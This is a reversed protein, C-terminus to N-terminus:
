VVPSGSGLFCLGRQTGLLCPRSSCAEYVDSPLDSSFHGLWMPVPTPSEIVPSEVVSDPRIYGESMTPLFTPVAASRVSVLPSMEPDLVIEDMVCCDSESDFWRAPRGCGDGFPVVASTTEWRVDVQTEANVVVHLSLPMTASEEFMIPCGDTLVCIVRGIDKDSLEM